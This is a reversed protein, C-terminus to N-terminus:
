LQGRLRAQVRRYAKEVAGRRIHVGDRVMHRGASWVNRIARVGGSFIWADLLRDGALGALHTSQGDLEIMDAWAGIRLTGGRRGVAQAGGACVKELLARGTSAHGSALATRRGYRLRQSYELTRLEDVLSIRVNSDTGVGYNGGHRVYPVGAFIGDGLNSETVPCLGAVAGTRALARAERRNMQTCHVLCWRGDVDASDLVWAVPRAGRESVIQDVEDPQEALHMHLPLAPRLSAGTAFMEAGVARLSHMAVGLGSDSDLRSIETAAAEVIACFQDIGSVFRWQGAALARGSPGGRVYLVPLLTLGIGSEAAAAALRSSMEAPNEYPLGKAQHHLYHFEAVHAFGSELMEVQAFAAIAEVDDPSLLSACDFMLRRWTWFDDRSDAAASEALGAMARQFAHSHLNVPSPVVVSCLEGVPPTGAELATIRGDGSISISVAREWGSATLAADAWLKGARPRPRKLGPSDMSELTGPDNM